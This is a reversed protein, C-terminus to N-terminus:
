RLGSGPRDRAAADSWEFRGLSLDHGVVTRGDPFEVEYQTMDGFKLPQSRQRAVAVDVLVDGACDQFFGAPHGGLQERRQIGDAVPLADADLRTADVYRVAKGIGIPLEGLGAPQTERVVRREPALTQRVRQM